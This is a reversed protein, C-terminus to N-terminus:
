GQRFQSFLSLGAGGLEQEARNGRVEAGDECFGSAPSPVVAAFTASAELSVPAQFLHQIRPLPVPAAAKPSLVVLALLLHCISVASSGQARPSADIELCLSVVCSVCPCSVAPPEM